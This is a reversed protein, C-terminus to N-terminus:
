AGAGEAGSKKAALLELSAGVYKDLYTNIVDATANLENEATANNERITSEFTSQVDDPFANVNSQTASVITQLASKISDLAPTASNKFNVGIQDHRPGVQGDDFRDAFDSAEKNQETETYSGSWSVNYMESYDKGAGQTFDGISNVYTNVAKVLNKYPTTFVNGFDVANGDRWNETLTTVAQTLTDIGEVIKPVESNLTNMISETQDPNYDLDTDFRKINLKLNAM